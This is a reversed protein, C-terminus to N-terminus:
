RPRPRHRITSIAAPAVDAPRLASADPAPAVTRPTGYHDNIGSAASAKASEAAIAPDARELAHLRSLLGDQERDLQRIRTHLADQQESRTPDAPTAHERQYIRSQLAQVSRDIGDIQARLARAEDGRTPADPTAALCASAGLGLVACAVLWRKRSDM